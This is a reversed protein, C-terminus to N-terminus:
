MKLVTMIVATPVNPWMMRAEIAAYGSAFYLNGPLTLKACM